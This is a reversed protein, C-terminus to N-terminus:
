LAGRSLDHTMSIAQIATLNGGDGADFPVPMIDINAGLHRLQAKMRLSDAIGLRTKTDMMVVLRKFTSVGTQLLFLQEESISNTSLGVSRVGFQQGYFDVKLVDFPGEQLVLVAGGALMADHNFLTEKAPIISDRVSLDRYKIEAPGIARGTWTILEQDQIYPIVIRDRWPGDGALLGYQRCVADVDLFRTGGTFGRQYLYNWHRRTRPRETIPSFRPDMHLVRREANADVADPRKHLLRAAIADFGEPDVYDAGLGAIERAKAYPIHLLRMLLRLPSKGSHQSRNRWCSWWGTELNVGMHKSPDASGCFPCRIALEGRKVNKGEEIFPVNNETLVRRWDIVRPM